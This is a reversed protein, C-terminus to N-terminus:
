ADQNSSVSNRKEIVASILSTSNGSHCANKSLFFDAGVAAARERYESEDCGTMMAILVEPYAAKIDGTLQLGNKGRGLDIDMFILDPTHSDMM